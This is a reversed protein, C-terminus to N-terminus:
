HCLGVIVLERVNVNMLFIYGSVPITCLFVLFQM